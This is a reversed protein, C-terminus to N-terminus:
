TVDRLLLPDKRLSFVNPFCKETGGAIKEVRRQSFQLYVDSKSNFTFAHPTKGSFHDFESLM